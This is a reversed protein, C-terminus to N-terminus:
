WRYVHLREGSNLDILECVTGEPKRRSPKKTQLFARWAKKLRPYEVSRASGSPPTVRVVYEGEKDQFPRM